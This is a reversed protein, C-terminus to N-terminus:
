NNEDSIIVPYHSGTDHVQYFCNFVQALDNNNSRIFRLGAHTMGNGDTMRETQLFYIYKTFYFSIGTGTSRYITHFQRHVLDQMALGIETKTADVMSGVM